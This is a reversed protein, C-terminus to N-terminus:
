GGTVEQMPTLFPKMATIPSIITKVKKQRQKAMCDLGVGMIEDYMFNDWACKFGEPTMPNDPDEVLSYVGLPAYRFSVTLKADIIVCTLDPHISKLIKNIRNMNDLWRNFEDDTDPEGM